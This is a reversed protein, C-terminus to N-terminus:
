KMLVLKQCSTVDGVQLKALYIGSALKSGDFTVQHTGAAQLGEVLTAILRGNTDYVKLSVQSVVSLQYSITTTPNFPNPSISLEQGSPILATLSREGPFPEGTCTAETIWPDGDTTTSKTWTFSSSDVAPYAFSTNAYGLYTYLGAAWAGPVSQNRTRTVLLGVPTNITVPGLTPATYTGNPNKIRAWVTYPTAPGVTRQISVNFSFSGGQAPVIIPPNIPTLAVDLYLSTQSYKITAFDAYTGIGPSGGTVYVNGNGDLALSHAYDEGSGPGNYRAVWQQQGASNYKVTAFDDDSM